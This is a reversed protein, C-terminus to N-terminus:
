PPRKISSDVLRARIDALASSSISSDFRKEVRAKIQENTKDDKILKEALKRKKAATVKRQDM